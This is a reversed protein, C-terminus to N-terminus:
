GGFAVSCVCWPIGWHEVGGNLGSSEGILQYLAVSVGSEVHFLSSFLLAFVTSVGAFREIKRFPKVM